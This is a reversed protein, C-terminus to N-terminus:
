KVFLLKKSQLSRIRGSEDIIQYRLWYSGAAVVMGASNRGDWSAVYSGAERYGNAIEVVERGTVDFIVISIVGHTDISYALNTTPNFPNPSISIHCGLPTASTSNTLHGSPQGKERMQGYVAGWWRPDAYTSSSHHHARVDYFLLDSSQSVVVYEPDEFSNTSHSCTALYVEPGMVGSHRIKRYVHYDVDANPHLDWTVLVPDGLAGGVYVNEVQVPKAVSFDATYTTAGQSITVNINHTAGGGDSWSTFQQILGNHTQPTVAEVSHTTSVGWNSNFPSSYNGADARVTGGDFSNRVVVPIELCSKESGLNPADITCGNISNGNLAFEDASYDYNIHVDGPGNDDGYCGRYDVYFYASHGSTTVSIKYLGRQIQPHPSCDLNWDWGYSNTSVNGYVSFQSDFWGNPNGSNAVYDKDVNWLFESQSQARFYNTVGSANTTGIFLELCPSFPSHQSLALPAIGFALILLSARNMSWEGKRTLPNIM